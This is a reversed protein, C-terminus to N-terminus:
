KDKLHNLFEQQNGSLQQFLNLLQRILKLQRIMALQFLDQFKNL